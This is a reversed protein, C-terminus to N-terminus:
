EKGLVTRLGFEEKKFTKEGCRFLGVAKQILEDEAFAFICLQASCNFLKGCGNREKEKRIRHLVRTHVHEGM